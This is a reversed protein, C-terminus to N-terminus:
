KTIIDGQRSAGFAAVETLPDEPQAMTAGSRQQIQRHRYSFFAAALFSVVSLYFWFTYDVSVKVAPSFDNDRGPEKIETKVDGNIQIMVIILSVAALTGILMNAGFRFRNGSLSLALGTVGLILAVLALVYMKGKEKSTANESTEVQGELSRLSGTVKYDTGFALGVGTNQAFPVDNCKIEVFPLFFLLVGVLYAISATHKKQFFNDEATPM